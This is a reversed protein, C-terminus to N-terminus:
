YTTGYRLVSRISGILLVAFVIALLTIILVYVLAFQLTIISQLIYANVLILAAHAILASQVFSTAQPRYLILFAACTLFLGNAITIYPQIRLWLNINEERIVNHFGWLTIIGTVLYFFGVMILLFACQEYSTIRGSFTDAASPSITKPFLFHRIQVGASQDISEIRAMVQDVLGEPPKVPQLNKIEEIIDSYKEM